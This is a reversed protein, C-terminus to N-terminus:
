SRSDPFLRKLTWSKIKFEKEIAQLPLGVVNDFDGNYHTVFKKGIGQIAYAGAKDLPEKTKIYDTIESSSIKRFSVETTEILSIEDNTSLDIIVVATKVHHTQGSLLTLFNFAMKESEPKGLIQDSFCVMTDAALILDDSTVSFAALGNDTLQSNCFRAKRRAIDIIQDNLNLNKNPIESVHTPISIFDYGAKRLIEFRRPSQSALIIKKMTM